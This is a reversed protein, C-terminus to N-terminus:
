GMENNLHFVTLGYRQGRRAPLGYPISNTTRTSSHPFLSHQGTIPRIPISGCPSMMGRSFPSVEVHEKKVLSSTWGERLSNCIVTCPMIQAPAGEWSDSVHCPMSQALHRRSTRLSCTRITFAVGFITFGAGAVPSQFAQATHLSVKM